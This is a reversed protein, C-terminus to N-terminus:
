NLCFPFLRAAGGLIAFRLMTMDTGTRRGDVYVTILAPVRYLIGSPDVQVGLPRWGPTALLHDNAPDLGITITSPACARQQGAFDPHALSVLLARQAAVDGRSTANIQSIVDDVARRDAAPVDAAPSAAGPSAAATLASTVAVESATATSSTPASNESDSCGILTLALLLTLALTLTRTTEERGCLRDAAVSTWSPM